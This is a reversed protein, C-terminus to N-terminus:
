VGHCRVIYDLINSVTPFINKFRQALWINGGFDKM